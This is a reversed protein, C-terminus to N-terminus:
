NSAKSVASSYLARVAISVWYRTRYAITTISPIYGTEGPTAGTTKPLNQELWSAGADGTKQFARHYIIVTYKSNPIIGDDKFYFVDEMPKNTRGFARLSGLASLGFLFTKRKM